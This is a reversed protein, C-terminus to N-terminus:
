TFLHNNADALHECSYSNQANLWQTVNVEHRDIPPIGSQPTAGTSSNRMRAHRIDFLFPDHACNNMIMRNRNTLVM